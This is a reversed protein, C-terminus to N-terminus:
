DRRISTDVYQYTGLALGSRVVEKQVHRNYVQERVASNLMAALEHEGKRTMYVWPYLRIPKDVHILKLQGPNKADFDYFNGADALTVDAKSTQVDVYLQAVGMQSPVSHVKAKPFDGMVVQGLDDDQIAVTISSDNLTALSTDFRKDDARVAPVVISYMYPDTYELERGRSASHWAGTCISDYRGSKLGEVMTSFNVEEVWDVKLSLKKALDEFLAVTLGGLQKTNPDLTAIPPLLWYACRIVGTRIVREYATETHAATKHPGADRAVYWSVLASVGIVLLLSLAKRM